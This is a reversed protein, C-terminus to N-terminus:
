LPACAFAMARNDGKMWEVKPFFETAVIQVNLFPDITFQEEGPYISHPGPGAIIAATEFLGKLRHWEFM